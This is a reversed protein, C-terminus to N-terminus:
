REQYSRLYSDVDGGSAYEMIIALRSRDEVTEICRTINAHRMRKLLEAEQKAQAMHLQDGGGRAQNNALKAAFLQGDSKREVLYVDGYQGSGLLELTEYGAIAVDVSSEFAPM